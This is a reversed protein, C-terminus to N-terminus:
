CMVVLRCPWRNLGYVHLIIEQQSTYNAPVRRRDAPKTIIYQDRRMRPPRHPWSRESVVFVMFFVHVSSVSLHDRIEPTFRRSSFALANWACMSGIRLM